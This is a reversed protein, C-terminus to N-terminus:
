HHDVQLRAPFLLTISWHFPNHNLHPTRFLMHYLGIFGVLKGCKNSTVLGVSMALATHLFFHGSRIRKSSSSSSCFLIDGINQSLVHLEWLDISNSIWWLLLYGWFGPFYQRITNSKYQNKHLTLHTAIAIHYFRSLYLLLMTPFSAWGTECSWSKWVIGVDSM